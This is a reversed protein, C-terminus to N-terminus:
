VLYKHLYMVQGICELIRFHDFCRKNSYDLIGTGVFIHYLICSFVLIHFPVLGGFFNVIPFM